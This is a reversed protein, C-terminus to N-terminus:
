STKPWQVETAAISNPYVPVPRGKQWQVICLKAGVRRGKEDYKLTGDPFFLAPGTNKLDLGRIAQMVKRRDAAGAREV